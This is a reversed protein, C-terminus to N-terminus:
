ERVPFQLVVDNNEGNDVQFRAGQEDGGSRSAMVTYEGEPLDLVLWLGRSTTNLLEGETDSSVTVEVDAVYPGGEEFFVLKTTGEPADQREQESVGGSWIVYDQSFALAACAALIVFGWHHIKM